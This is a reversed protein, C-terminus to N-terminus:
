KGESGPWGGAPVGCIPDKLLSKWAARDFDSIVLPQNGVASVAIRFYVGGVNTEVAPTFSVEESSAIVVEALKQWPGGLPQSFELQYCLGKLAKARILVRSRDSSNIISAVISNTAVESMTDYRVGTARLDLTDLSTVDAVYNTSKYFRWLYDSAAVPRAIQAADLYFWATPFNYVGHVEQWEAWIRDLNAHHMWFIPDNPSSPAGMSGGVWLHVRGHLEDGFPDGNLLTRKGTHGEMFNRFTRRSLFDLNTEVTYDWPVDDYGAMTFATTIHLAPPLNSVQSADPYEPPPAGGVSPGGFIQHTSISRQLFTRATGVSSASSVNTSTDIPFDTTRDDRTAFPGTRVRFPTSRTNLPGTTYAGNPGTGNGGMFDDRFVFPIVDPDTWDWYPITVTEPIGLDKAARQLEREFARLFERHWPFFSPAMHIGSGGTLHTLFGDNHLKVLWDYANLGSANGPDYASPHTKMWLVSRVYNTRQLATLNTVNQRVALSGATISHSLLWSIILGILGTLWRRGSGPTGASTRNDAFPFQSSRHEM